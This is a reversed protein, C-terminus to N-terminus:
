RMKVRAGVCNQVGASYETSKVRYETSKYLVTYDHSYRSQVAITASTFKGVLVASWQM